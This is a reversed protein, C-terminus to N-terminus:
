DLGSQIASPALKAQKDTVEKAYFMHSIRPPEKGRHFSWVRERTKLDSATFRERQRMYELWSETIFTENMHSPDSADQYVGWRIAGDRLRVDRLKHIAKTFANYDAPDITYDISVRVPGADEQESTLKPAPLAYLRPTFDPQVGRLVHFRMALPFTVALGIGSCLLSKSTSVHEAVLGWIVGGLAMGGSFIMQYAGLARAQVWAPVSVQVALNLTSMCSTWAFGAAILIPIIILPTKVLALILLTVV